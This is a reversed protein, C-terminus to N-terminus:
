KENRKVYKLFKKQDEKIMKKCHDTFKIMSNMVCDDIRSSGKIYYTYCKDCTFNDSKFININTKIPTKCFACNWNVYNYSDRINSYESIEKTVPHVHPKRLHYVTNIADEILFICRLFEDDTSHKKIVPNKLIIKKYRPFLTGLLIGYKTPARGPKQRKIQPFRM